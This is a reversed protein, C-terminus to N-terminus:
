LSRRLEDAEVSEKEDIYLDRELDDDMDEM